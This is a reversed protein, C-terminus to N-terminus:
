EREQKEKKRHYQRCRQATKNRNTTIEALPCIVAETQLEDNVRQRLAPIVEEAKRCCIYVTLIRRQPGYDHIAPDSFSKVRPDSLLIARLRELTEHDIGRGLLPAASERASHAGAYLICLAVLVGTFGDANFGTLNEIIISALIALTAIVDSLSDLAAAKMGASEIRKGIRSNYLYMFGKIGVSILLIVIVTPCSDVEQPHLLKGISSLLMRGGIGLIALSILLGSLYELRGCGFPFRRCPRVSGLLFGSLALVCSGADALNNFGDATIAISGSLTGATYKLTFLMLNLCMGLVSFLAGLRQRGKGGDSFRRIIRETM